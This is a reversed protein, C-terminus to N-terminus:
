NRTLRDRARPIGRQRGPRSPYRQGVCVRVESYGSIRPEDVRRVNGIGDAHHGIDYGVGCYPEHLVGVLAVLPEFVLQRAHDIDGRVTQPCALGPNAPNHGRHECGPVAVGENKGSGMVTPYLLQQGHRARRRQRLVVAQAIGDLPAALHKRRIIHQVEPQM